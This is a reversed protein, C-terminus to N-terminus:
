RTGGVLGARGRGPGELRHRHDAGAGGAQDAAARCARGPLSWHGKLAETSLPQTNDFLNPLTFQPASKGILPSPLNSKEPARKLGVLLVVLLLLFGALPLV